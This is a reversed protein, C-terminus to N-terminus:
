ERVRGAVHDNERGHNGGNKKELLRKSASNM